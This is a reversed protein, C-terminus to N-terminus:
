IRASQAVQGREDEQQLAVPFSAYIMYHDFLRKQGDSSITAYPVTTIERATWLKNKSEISIVYDVQGGNPTTKPYSEPIIMSPDLDPFSYSQINLDGIIFVLSTLKTQQTIVDGLSVKLQNLTARATKKKPLHVNMFSFLATTSDSISVSNYRIVQAKKASNGHEVQWNNAKLVFEMLQNKSKGFREVTTICTYGKNNLIESIVEFATKSSVEQFCIIDPKSDEDMSAVKQLFDASMKTAKYSAINWSIIKVVRPQVQPATPGSSIIDPVHNERTSGDSISPQDPKPLDDPLPAENEQHLLHWLLHCLRHTVHKLPKLKRIWKSYESPYLIGDDNILDNFTNVVSLQTTRREAHLETFFEHVVSYVTDQDEVEIAFTEGKLFNLSISKELLFKKIANIVDRHAEIQSSM